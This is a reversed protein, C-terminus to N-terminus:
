AYQARLWRREQMSGAEYLLAEVIKWEKRDDGFIERSQRVGVSIGMEEEGSLAVREGRDSIRLSAILVM